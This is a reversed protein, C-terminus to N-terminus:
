RSILNYKQGRAAGQLRQKSRGTYAMEAIFHTVASNDRLM